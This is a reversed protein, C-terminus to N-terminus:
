LGLLIDRNLTASTTMFDHVIISAFNAMTIQPMFGYVYRKKYCASSQDTVVYEHFAPFVDICTGSPSWPQYFYEDLRTIVGNVASAKNNYNIISNYNWDWCGTTGNAYLFIPWNLTWTFNPTINTPFSYYYPQINLIFRYDIDIKCNIRAQEDVQDQHYYNWDSTTSLTLYQNVPYQENVNRLRQTRLRIMKEETDYFNSSFHPMDLGFAVSSSSIEKVYMDSFQLFKNGMQTLTSKLFLIYKSRLADANIEGKSNRDVTFYFNQADYSTIEFKDQKDVIAANFFTEMAFVAKNIDYTQNIINDNNILESFNSIISIIENDSYNNEEYQANERPTFGIYEEGMLSKNNVRNDNQYDEENTCAVTFIALLAIAIIKKINKM